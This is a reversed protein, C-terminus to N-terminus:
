FGTYLGIAYTLMINPQVHNDPWGPGKDLPVGLGIQGTIVKRARLVISPGFLSQTHYDGFGQHWYQLSLYSSRTTPKFHMNIGFGYGSHGAGFQIGGKQGILHEYDVGLLSGGGELFGITLANRQNPIETRMSKRDAYYHIEKIESRNIYYKTPPQGYLVSVMSSDVSLIKCNIRKGDMKIIVDQAYAAITLLGLILLLCTKKM